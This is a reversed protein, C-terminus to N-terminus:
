VYFLWETKDDTANKEASMIKNIHDQLVMSTSFVPSSSGANPNTWVNTTGNGDDNGNLM